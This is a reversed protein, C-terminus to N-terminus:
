SSSTARRAQGRGACPRRPSSPWSMTARRRGERPVARGLARRRGGATWSLEFDRNAPVTARPMTIVRSDPGQTEIDVAHNASVVEGLPFGAQLKVTLTVPNVPANNRPDLVPPTIRDRDPVPDTTVDPGLRGPRAQLRGVAGGAGPQLAAGGGAARAALVPRGVPARDGPVRDPGARDRGPRCQRGLNTFLNPREQEVLGATQGAQKAAEYIRAPRRAPQKIDGIIVRDGVVMKLTDVAGDEPLPYVYVAEVWQDTPNHFVQTVHARATPGSVTLDVDTGLRPAEVYRGKENARFLLAGSQM